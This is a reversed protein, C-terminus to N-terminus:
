FTVVSHIFSWTPNKTKQVDQLFDIVEGKGPLGSALLQFRRRDSRLSYAGGPWRPIELESRLPVEAVGGGRAWVEEIIPLVDTNVQWATRGLANLADIVPQYAVPAEKAEAEIKLREKEAEQVKQFNEMPSSQKSIPKIVRKKKKNARSPFLNGEGGAGAKATNSAMAAPDFEEKMKAMRKM